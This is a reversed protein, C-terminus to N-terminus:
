FSLIFYASSKLKKGKKGAVAWEDGTEWKDDTVTPETSSFLGSQESPLSPADDSSGARPGDNRICM